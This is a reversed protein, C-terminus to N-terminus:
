VNIRKLKKILKTFINPKQNFNKLYLEIKKLALNSEELPIKKIIISKKAVEVEFMNSHGCHTGSNDLGINYTLSKGPYLTLKEKLFASAYWRVAWSDNKGNIQDELMGTYNYAGFIDFKSTLNRTKLESLLKKGNSEFLKWGRKWTAWGWCDAGRIFFTEPIDEIPYIYGSISIVEDDGEYFELAENMFKLFYPSFILDDEIVIIKGYKNVIETVGSIISRALGLNEKRESITINKFGSITKIYERVKRVEKEVEKNKPNDSFVFLESDRALENKQLAEITQQTHWPRNYVFLVIPALNM